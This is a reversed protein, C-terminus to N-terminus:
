YKSSFVYLIFFESASRLSSPAISFSRVLFFLGQPVRQNTDLANYLM